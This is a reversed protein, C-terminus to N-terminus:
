NPNPGIYHCQGWAICGDFTGRCTCNVSDMVPYCALQWCEQCAYKRTCEQSSVPSSSGLLTALAAALALTRLPFRKM